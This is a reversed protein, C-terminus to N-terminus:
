KLKWSRACKLKGNNSTIEAPEPVASAKSAARTERWRRERRKVISAHRCSRRGGNLPSRKALTRESLRASLRPACKGRYKNKTSVDRREEANIIEATVARAGDGALADVDGGGRMRRKERRAASSLLAASGANYKNDSIIRCISMSSLFFAPSHLM